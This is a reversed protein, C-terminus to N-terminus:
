FAGQSADLTALDVWFQFISKRFFNLGDMNGGKEDGQEALLCKMDHIFASFDNPM